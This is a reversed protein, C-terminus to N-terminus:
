ATPDGEILHRLLAKLRAPKVPKHLLRCNLLAAEEVRAPDSEGTLVIGPTAVGLRQRVAAIAELGNRRSALRYDAVIADPAAQATQALRDLEAASGATEVAVGWLDLLAALAELVEGDDELVWVHRGALSDGAAPQGAEQAKSLDERPPWPLTLAFVSGRSLASRLALRGELLRTIREAIALGLGLGLSRDRAANGLQVFPQFIERQRAAAIGLGRDAVLIRYGETLPKIRLTVPGGGGYKMANDMLNRLISALLTPDGLVWTAPGQVSLPSGSGPAIEEAVRLALSRLELPELRVTVVGADLKSIDLLASLLTEMSDLCAELRGTLPAAREPAEKMAQLHFRMAQLPQRLDHSAAALFKSKAADAEEARILAARLAEEAEHKETVDLALGDWVVTGDALRRPKGISRVWRVAGDASIVRNELDLTTLDRASVELAELFAARDAEPIWSFDVDEQLTIADPEIGFIEKLGQSLFSYSYRGDPHRLRRVVNGPLNQVLVDLDLGPRGAVPGTESGTMLVQM